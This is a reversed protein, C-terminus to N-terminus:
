NVVVTIPQAQEVVGNPGAALFAVGSHQGRDAGAEAELTIIVSAADPGVAAPKMSVGRPLNESSFRLTVGEGPARRVEVPVDARGGRVLDVTRRQAELEFTPREAVAVAAAEVRVDTAGEGGGSAIRASRWAVAGGDADVVRVLAAGRAQEEARIRFEAQETQSEGAGSATAPITVPDARLAEPLGELRLEAQGAHGEVRHISVALAAEGGPPVAVSDADLLLELRPSARRVELFYPWDGAPPRVLSRVQLEYQGAAAFTHVIKPDKNFRVGPLSADDSEAVVEQASESGGLIRLLMDVPSALRRARVEFVLTEGAEASFPFREPREYQAVSAIGSPIALRGAAPRPPLDHVWLALENSRGRPTSLALSHRGLPAEPGVEVRVTARGAGTAVVNGSLGSRSFEVSADASELGVGFVTVQAAEGAPLALPSLGSLHPSRRIDLQYGHEPRARGRTPQVIAFHDEGADLAHGFFPDWIFHDESHRLKRGESDLLILSPDLGSGNRAARLDFVWTGGAPPRFRFIDIDEARDLRGNVTAPVQVSQPQTLRGNPEAEGVHPLGGVRFLLVNSAGRRTVLRFYHPGPRAEPDVALQCRLATHRGGLIRGRVGRQLFLLEQPQDLDRGLIEVEVEAGPAAGQPFVSAVRPLRHPLEAEGASLAPLALLVFALMVPM